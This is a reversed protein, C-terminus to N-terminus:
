YFTIGNASGHSHGPGGLVCYGLKKNFEAMGAILILVAIQMIEFGVKDL